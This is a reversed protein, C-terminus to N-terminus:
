RMLGKRDLADLVVLASELTFEDREIAEVGEDLGRTAFSAVEGDL